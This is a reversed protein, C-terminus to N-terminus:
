LNLSLTPTSWGTNHLNSTQKAKPSAQLEYKLSCKQYVM